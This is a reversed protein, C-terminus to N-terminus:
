QLLKKMHANYQKRFEMISILYITSWAGQFIVATFVPISYIGLKYETSFYAALATSILFAVMHVTMITIWSFRFKQKKKLITAALDGMEKDGNLMMIIRDLERSQIIKM